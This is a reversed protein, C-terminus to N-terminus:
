NLLNWIFGAKSVAAITAVAVATATPPVRLSSSNCLLKNRLHSSSTGPHSSPRASRISQDRGCSQCRMSPCFRKPLFVCSAFASYKVLYLYHAFYFHCLFKQM